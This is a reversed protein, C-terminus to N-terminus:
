LMKPSPKIYTYRNYINETQRRQKKHAMHRFYLNISQNISQNISLKIYASKFSKQFNFRSSNKGGAFRRPLTKTAYTQIDTHLVIAKSIRSTSFENSTKLLYPWIRIHLDDPLTLIGQDRCCFFDRYEM